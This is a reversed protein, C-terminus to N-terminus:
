LHIHAHFLSLPELALATCVNPVSWTARNSHFSVTGSPATRRVFANRSGAWRGTAFTAYATLSSLRVRCRWPWERKTLCVSPTLKKATASTTIPLFPLNPPKMYSSLNCPNRMSSGAPNITSIRINEHIDRYRNRGNSQSVFVDQAMHSAHAHGM